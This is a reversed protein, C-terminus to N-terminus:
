VRLPSFDRLPATCLIHLSLASVDVVAQAMAAFQSIHDWPAGRERLDLIKHAIGVVPFQFISNGSHSSRLSRRSGAGGGALNDLIEASNAM